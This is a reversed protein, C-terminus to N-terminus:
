LGIVGDYSFKGSGSNGVVMLFNQHRLRQLMSEIESEGGFFFRVDAACFPIM